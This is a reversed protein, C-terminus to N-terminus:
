VVAPGNLVTGNERWYGIYDTHVIFSSRLLHRLHQQFSTPETPIGLNPEPGAASRGRLGKKTRIGALSWDPLLAKGCTDLLDKATKSLKVAQETSGAYRDLTIFLPM